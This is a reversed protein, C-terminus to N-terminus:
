YIFFNNKIPQNCLCKKEIKIIEKMEDQKDKWYTKFDNNYIRSEVKVCNISGWNKYKATYAGCYGFKAVKFNEKTINHENHLNDYFCQERKMEVIYNINDEMSYICSLIAKLIFILIEKPIM